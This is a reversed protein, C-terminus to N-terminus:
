DRLHKGSFRQLPIAKLQNELFFLYSKQLFIIGQVPSDLADIFYGNLDTGTKVLIM